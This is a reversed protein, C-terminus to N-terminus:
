SAPEPSTITVPVGVPGARPEIRRAVELGAIDDLDLGVMDAQQRLPTISSVSHTRGFSDALSRNSLAIVAVEPPSAM